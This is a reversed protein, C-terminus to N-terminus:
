GQEGIIKDKNWEIDAMVEWLSTKIMVWKPAIEMIEM